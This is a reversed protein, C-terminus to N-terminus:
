REDACRRQWAPRVARVAFLHVTVPHSPRVQTFAPDEFRQIADLEFAARMPALANDPIMLHTPETALLECMRDTPSPARAIRNHNLGIIDVVTMSRPTHYRAAGAGEVAIRADSPLNEALYHAPLTHLMRTDLEWGRLARISAQSQWGLMGVLPVILGIALVVRLRVLALAIAVCPLASVIVFYRREYFEVGPHLQRSWAIALVTALWAVGLGSADRPGPRWGVTLGVAFLIAGTISVLWPEWVLVEDLVYVLSAPDGFQGKIALTNPLWYGGGLRNVTAWMLGGLGLGLVPWGEAASRRHAARWLAFVAITVSAEPRALGALAALGTAALRRNECCNVITGLILAATLSVEMGSVSAALLPPWAAILTGALATVSALPVPRAVSAREAAVVLALRAGTWATIAHLLAGLLQVSLVPARDIPWVALVLVWLPSTSGLASDHPNYSFGEGSRLSKAYSLHIWADDLAFDQSGVRVLLATAFALLATVLAVREEVIAAVPRPSAANM